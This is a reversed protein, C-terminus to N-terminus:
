DIFQINDIPINRLKHDACDEVIACSIEYAADDKFQITKGIEYFLGEREKFVEQCENEADEYDFLNPKQYGFIGVGQMTYKVKRTKEKM